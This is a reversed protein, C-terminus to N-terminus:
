DGLEIEQVYGDGDSDRMRWIIDSSDAHFLQLGASTSREFFEGMHRPSLVAM